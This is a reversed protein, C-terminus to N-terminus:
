FEEWDPDNDSNAVNAPKVFNTSNVSRRALNAGTAAPGSLTSAPLPTASLKASPKAEGGSFFEILRILSAVEEITSHSAASAEEVLAANQQTAEDLQNIAQNVMIIGDSQEQSAASIESVIDTVKKVQDVIEDLTRGSKNVLQAGNEVRNVSDEILDKIEKAATASRGALNRVESAVVAFGRGQEGARAAEVSANLALLNTQFAIDDIVGIIDSIKRSSENIGAMAQVAEGVVEGGIEAQNRASLALEKAQFSNQANQQVSATMEEMSSSTEELSAAARETRQSLDVNGANIERSATDVTSAVSRINQVIDSLQDVSRNADRKLDAFSGGYESDITKSLDGEAIASLFVQVDEVIHRTVDLLGNVGGALALYVGEKNSTEIRGDLNGDNASRVVSDVEDMVQREVTVDIWEMSTGLRAGDEGWIANVKVTIVRGGAVLEFKHSKELNNITVQLARPDDCLKAIELGELSASSIGPCILGLDARYNDVYNRMSANVFVIRHEASSICVMASLKQMGQRLRVIRVMNRQDVELREKLQTQMTAMVRLTGTHSDLSGFDRSLDGEAIENVINNLESPDAGLQKQTTRTVIISVAIAVFSGLGLMFLMIRNLEHLSHFAESGDQEVILLWDLGLINVVKSVSLVDNGLYDEHLKAFDGDGYSKAQDFNAKMTLITNEEVFPAQTRLLGDDGILFAKGTEGLGFRSTVSQNIQDLPMQYILVGIVSGNELIPMSIFSAPQNYSPLYASFEILSSRGSAGSALGSKFARAIGSNSYPGTKLSTAYDVEKYVSYVINGNVPEVLFIDYYGYSKLFENFYKHYKGHLESYRSGDEAADLSNKDGLPLPNDSIYNKQLLVAARSQPILSSVSVDDQNFDALKQSFQNRYYNEISSKGSEFNADASDGPGPYVQPEQDLNNYEVSFEHMADIVSQNEAMLEIQTEISSFYSKISEERVNRASVLSDVASASLTDKVKLNVLYSVGVLPVISAMVFALLLKTRLKM